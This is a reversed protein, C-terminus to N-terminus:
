RDDATGFLARLEAPIPVPRGSAVDTWVIMAAGTACVADADSRRIEYTSLVSSRGPEALYMRVEVVGPYSIPVLFTCDATVIVPTSDHAGIRYGLSELYDVRAEQLYLFYVTNNVHGYADM